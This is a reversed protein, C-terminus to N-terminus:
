YGGCENSLYCVLQGVAVGNHNLIEGAENFFLLVGYVNIEQQSPDGPLGQKTNSGSSPTYWSLYTKSKPDYRVNYCLNTPLNGIAAPDNVQKAMRFQVEAVGSVRDGTKPFKASLYDIWSVTPSSSPCAVHVLVRYAYAHGSFSLLSLFAILPAKKM